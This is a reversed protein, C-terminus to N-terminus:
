ASLCTKVLLGTCHPFPLNHHPRLGAILAHIGVVCYGVRHVSFIFLGSLNLLTAGTAVL